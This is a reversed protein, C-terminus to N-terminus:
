TTSITREQATGVAETRSTELGRADHVYNYREGNFKTVSSAYGNADYSTAAIDSGGCTPCPQSLNAVRKVDLVKIFSYTRETGASGTGGASTAETVKASGDAQYEM